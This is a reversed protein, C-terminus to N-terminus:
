DRSTRVFHSTEQAASLVIRSSGLPHLKTYSVVYGVSPTDIGHWCTMSLQLREILGASSDSEGEKTEAYRYHSM